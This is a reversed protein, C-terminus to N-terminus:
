NLINNALNKNKIENFSTFWYLQIKRGLKDEFNKKTISKKHAFIAIDIDSDPKVEAKALSGFLTVTPNILQYELYMILSKMKEKWYIRSLDIFERNENNAYFLLYNKFKEKKLLGEKSYMTLLKSATAPSIGLLKAYERVHIRRYCDEFFSQLNNLIELM